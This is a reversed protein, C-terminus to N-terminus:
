TYKNAPHRSGRLTRVGPISGVAMAITSSSPDWTRVRVLEIQRCTPIGRIHDMVETTLGRSSLGKRDMVKSLGRLDMVETIKDESTKAEITRDETTKVVITSYVIIKDVTLLHLDPGHLSICNKIPRTNGRQYKRRLQLQLQPQPQLSFAPRWQHRHFWMILHSRAAGRHPKDALQKISRGIVVMDRIGRVLELPFCPSPPM